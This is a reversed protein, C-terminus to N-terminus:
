NLTKLIGKNSKQEIQKLINKSALLEDARRTTIAIIPECQGRDILQNYCAVFEKKLWVLGDLSSMGIANMGGIARVADLTAEPLDEPIRYDGRSSNKVLRDWVVEPLPLQPKNKKEIEAKIQFVGPPFPSPNKRGFERVANKFEELSCFRGIEDYWISSTIKSVKWQTYASCLWIFCNDWESPTM